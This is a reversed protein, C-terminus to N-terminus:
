KSSGFLSRTSIPRHKDSSVYVMLSFYYNPFPDIQRIEAANPFTIITTIHGDDHMSFNVWYVLKKKVESSGLVWFHLQALEKYGYCM